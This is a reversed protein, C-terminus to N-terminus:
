KASRSFLRFLKEWFSPPAKPYEVVVRVNVTVPLSALITKVQEEVSAKLEVISPDVPAIEEVIEVGEVAFWDGAPEAWNRQLAEEAWDQSVKYTKGPLLREGNKYYRATKMLISVDPWIRPASQTLDIAETM